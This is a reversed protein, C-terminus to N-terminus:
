ESRPRLLMLREETVSAYHEGLTNDMVSLGFSVGAEAGPVFVVDHPDGTDLARRLVVTWRGDAHSGTAAVDGRGGSPLETLYGPALSGAPRFKKDLPVGAADYIPVDGAALPEVTGNQELSARSNARFLEGPVDGHMGGADLYRDDAFGHRGTRQAKWNWLDLWLGDAALKMKNRAHFSSGTVGFDDIHCARSCSFPSFEGQADWLLGFGDELEDGSHWLSGDYRWQRIADDRTADGWSLRLYLDTDTYFARLDVPVPDPLSAGHHCSATTTHVTDQDIDVAVAEKHLQGGRVSVVRPLARAWDRAAPPHDLHLAYLRDAPIEKCAAPALLALLFLASRIITSPKV